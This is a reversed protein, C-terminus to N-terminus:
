KDQYNLQDFIWVTSQPFDYTSFHFLFTSYHFSMLAIYTSSQLYLYNSNPVM